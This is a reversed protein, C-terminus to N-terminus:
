FTSEVTTVPCWRATFLNDWLVEQARPTGIRKLALVAYYRAYRNEDDLQRVLAPVAEDAAPGIKALAFASNFRIRWDEDALARGLDEAADPSAIVGLAEAANRRVWVNEDRMSQSLAPVTDRSLKGLNGLIDAAAARVAWHKHKLEGVLAPMAPAGTASLAHAACLEAPNGGQPNAPSAAQNAEARDRAEVRLADLLHSVAEGGADGLAYAARLRESEHEHHLNRALKALSDQDKGNREQTGAGGALWDWVHRALDGHVEDTRKQWDACQSVWTPTQPEEMRTFQFKLMYRKKDSRNATARHWSDFNVIAVTGAPGCLALERETSQAPDSSSIGGCYQRGPAIGTAGMDPTVNQPYYFAMVWRHRHHRVNQDYIYDDKHWNQGGNGPPNLHCYRHPHMAYHPGLLAALAGAVAPHDFIQQLEPIRPLINNGPNGEKALVEEIKDYVAQHFEPPYDAHVLTYGNVIFDRMASDDFHPNQM